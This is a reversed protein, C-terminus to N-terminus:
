LKSFSIGFQGFFCIVQVSCKSTSGDPPPKVEGADSKLILNESM